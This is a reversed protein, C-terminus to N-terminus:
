LEHQFQPRGRVSTTNNAAGVRACARACARACRIISLPPGPYGFLTKHSSKVQQPAFFGRSLLLDDQFTRTAIVCRGELRLHRDGGNSAVVGDRLKGLAEVKM